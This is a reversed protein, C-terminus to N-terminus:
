EMFDEDYHEQLNEFRTFHSLFATRATGTPGNRHKGIIIEAVGKDPTDENYVEDRYVFLILDADQEIGGSERLDSMRPRRDERQELQRNLQSLAIVPVDLEKALAKLSRSIESIENTRNEKTGPVQMLQLYDVMVLGIDHERKLRRARARMESPSLSPTDDIFLRANENMIGIASTIKPWDDETLRGSRLRSQDIRGWSSIMRIVLQEASMELSFVAVPVKEKIAANEVMNMALSTKGMSPRGALIILDAPQLGNTMKDFTHLGTPLGAFEDGKSVLEEIRNVAQTLLSNLGQPGEGGRRGREAIAFIEKEATELLESASRGETEFGMTTILDGARILQRMVSHERVIDAYAKINAAGPIDAALNGLYSAGGARELLDRSRLWETLTVLDRPKGTDALDALGRFLLRHDERYFDDESIRGAVDDWARESLLLGGVVSQEAEISHPPLKAEAM